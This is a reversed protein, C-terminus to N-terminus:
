ETTPYHDIINSLYPKKQNIDKFDKSKGFEQVKVKKFFKVNNKNIQKDITPNIIDKEPKLNNNTIDTKLIPKLNKINKNHVIQNLYKAYKGKYSVNQMDSQPINKLISQKYENSQQIKTKISNNLKDIEEELVKSKKEDYIINDGTNWESNAKNINLKKLERKKIKIIKTLNNIEIERELQKKEEREKDLSFQLRRKDICEMEYRKKLRKYKDIDSLKNIKPHEGKIYIEELMKEEQMKEEQMKEEQMKEEQMKEEQMIKEQMIKEEQLIEKKVNPIQNKSKEELIYKKYKTWVKIGDKNLNVRWIYKNNIGVHTYGVEYNQALYGKISPIDDM